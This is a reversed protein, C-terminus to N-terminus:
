LGCIERLTDCLAPCPRDRPRPRNDQDIIGLPSANDVDLKQELATADADLITPQEPVALSGCFRPIFDTGSALELAARQEAAIAFL